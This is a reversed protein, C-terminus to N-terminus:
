AHLQAPLDATAQRRDLPERRICPLIVIEAERGAREATMTERRVLAPPDPFRFVTAM